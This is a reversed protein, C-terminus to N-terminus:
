GKIHKWPANSYVEGSKEISTVINEARTIGPGIYSILVVPYENTGNMIVLVQGRRALKQANSRAVSQYAISEQNYPSIMGLDNNLYNRLLVEDVVDTCNGGWVFTDAGMCRYMESTIFRILSKHNALAVKVKADKTYGSYATIGVASLVGIIAIVVLLEILSFGKSKKFLKKYNM